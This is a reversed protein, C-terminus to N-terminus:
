RPVAPRRIDPPRIYFADFTGAAQRLAAPSLGATLRAALFAPSEEPSPRLSYSWAPPPCEQALFATGPGIVIPTAYVRLLDIVETATLELGSEIPQPVGAQRHYVACYYHQRRADLVPIIIGDPLASAAALLHLADLPVVPIGWSDALGRVTAMGIRIGTFSGPGNVVALAQLDATPRIGAERLVIDINALLTETHNTHILERRETLLRDGEAVALCQEATTTDVGLVIMKSTLAPEFDIVM